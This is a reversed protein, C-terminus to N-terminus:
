SYNIITRSEISEGGLVVQVRVLYQTGAVLLRGGTTELYRFQTSEVASVAPQPNIAAGTGSKSGDMTDILVAGADNEIVQIRVYPETGGQNDLPVLRGDREVHVTYLDNGGTTRIHGLVAKADRDRIDFHAVAASLMPKWTPDFLAEPDDPDPNAASFEPTGFTGAPVEHGTETAIQSFDVNPIEAIVRARYRGKPLIVGSSPVPFDVSGGAKNLASTRYDVLAPDATAEPDGGYTPIELSYDGVGFDVLGTERQAPQKRTVVAVESLHPSSDKRMSGLALVAKSPRIVNQWLGTDSEAAKWGKWLGTLTPLSVLTTLGSLKVRVWFRNKTIRRRSGEATVQQNDITTPFWDTPLTWVAQDSAGGLSDLLSGQALGAVATWATGNWYEVELTAAAWAGAVAIDFFISDFVFESGLYLFLTESLDTSNQVWPTVTLGNSSDALEMAYSYFGPLGPSADIDNERMVDDFTGIQDIDVLPFKLGSAQSAFGLTEDTGYTASDSVDLADVVHGARDRTQAVLVVSEDLPHITLRLM